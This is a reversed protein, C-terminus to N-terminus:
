KSEKEVVDFVTLLRTITLVEQVRQTLNMLKLQGNERKVAIYGSILEGIGSSDLFCIEEFNLIIDKKGDALLSRISNRLITNGHGFTLDGKLDLIVVDGDRREIINLQAM